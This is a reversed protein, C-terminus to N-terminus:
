KKKNRIIEYLTIAVAASVNISGSPGSMPISRIEDCTKKILPRVGKNENGVVLVLKDPFARDFIRIPSEPSIAIAWYGDEKLIKLSVALNAVRAIKVRGLTGASSKMVAASFPASRHKPIMIGSVSAAAASRCINGVNGPDQIQDLALIISESGKKDIETKWTKFDQVRITAVRVAMGQHCAGHTLRDLARRSVFSVVANTKRMESVIKRTHSQKQLNQQIWIHEIEEKRYQICQVVPHRGHILDEERSNM